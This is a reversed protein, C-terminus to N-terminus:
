NPRAEAWHLLVCAASRGRALPKRFHALERGKFLLGDGPALRVEVRGGGAASELYLPWASGARDSPTADIGLLLTYACEPGCTHREVSAGARCSLLQSGAPQVPEPLARAVVPAMWRQLWAAVPEDRAVAGRAQPDDQELFGSAALERAYDRLGGLLLGPLVQRLLAYGRCEIAARAHALKVQWDACSREFRAPTALLGGDTFRQRTEPDLGSATQRGSRLRALVDADRTGLGLPVPLGIPDPVWVTEGPSSWRPPLPVAEADALGPTLVHGKGKAPAKRARGSPWGSDLGCAFAVPLPAKEAPVLLGVTQLWGALEDPHEEPVLDLRALRGASLEHLFDHARPMTETRVVTRRLSEGRVPAEIEFAPGQASPLPRVRACRNVTWTAM